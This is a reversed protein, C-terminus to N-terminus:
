PHWTLEPVYSVQLDAGAGVAVGAGVVFGVQLAVGEFQVAQTAVGEFAQPVVLPVFVQVYVVYLPLVFQLAM